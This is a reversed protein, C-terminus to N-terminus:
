RQKGSEQQAFHEEWSFNPDYKNGKGVYDSASDIKATKDYEIKEPKKLQDQEIM